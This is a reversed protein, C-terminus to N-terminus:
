GVGGQGAEEAFTGEYLDAPYAAKRASGRAFTGV